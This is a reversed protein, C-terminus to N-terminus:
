KRLEVADRMHQEEEALISEIVTQPPDVFDVYGVGDSARFELKGNWLWVAVYVTPCCDARDETDLVMFLVGSEDAHGSGLLWPAEPSDEMMEEELGQLARGLRHSWDTNANAIYQWSGMVLRAPRRSNMHAAHVDLAAQVLAEAAERDAALEEDNALDGGFNTCATLLSALALVTFPAALRPNKM